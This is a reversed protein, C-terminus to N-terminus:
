EVDVHSCCSEDAENLVEYRQSFQGTEGISIKHSHSLRLSKLFITHMLTARLATGARISQTFLILFVHQWIRWWTLEVVFQTQIQNVQFFGQNIFLSSLILTAVLALAIPIGRKLDSSDEDLFQVFMRVFVPQVMLMAYQLSLLVGAIVVRWGFVKWAAYM